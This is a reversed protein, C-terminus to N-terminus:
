HLTPEPGGLKIDIEGFRKEYRGVNESLAKVLRKANVPNMLVRSLIKAERLGPPVFAFDLVFETPGHTTLALNVYAGQVQGDAFTLRLKKGDGKPAQDTKDAM